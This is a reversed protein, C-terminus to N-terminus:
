KQRIGIDHLINLRMKPWEFLTKNSSINLVKWKLHASNKRNVIHSFPPLISIAHLLFIWICKNTYITLTNIILYVSIETKSLKECNCKKEASFM